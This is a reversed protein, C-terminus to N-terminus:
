FNMLSVKVLRHSTAFLAMTFPLSKSDKEVSPSSESSDSEVFTVGKSSFCSDVPFEFILRYCLTVSVVLESLVVWPYIM